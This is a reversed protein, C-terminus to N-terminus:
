ACYDDLWVHRKKDDSLEWNDATIKADELIDRLTTQMKRELDNLYNEVAGVMTLNSLFQVHEGDKSYMGQATKYPHPGEELFHMCLMGDFCDGLYEDVKEPNNGNSLIDLLSQNSLYYFRPFVKKKEDLYDELAKECLEIDSYFTNLTEERGEYTCADIVGPEDNAETMMAKWDQDIKEFRKTDDPLQQRIDESALFIPELRMWQRQVKLWIVIVSDVTKMNKQWLLVKDKFEEVDKSSMMGMLDVAHSDVFETIEGMEGLIFTEGYDKFEFV